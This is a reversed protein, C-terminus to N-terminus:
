GLAAIVAPLERLSRVSFFGPTDAPPAEAHELAWTLHYPVHVGAGGLALVPLIDSKISNGVMLFRAPSVGHKRLISAYVATDKESVIEINSFFEALCSRAVKQEQHRLDGKTIVMLRHTRSLARVTDAAGELLEIPHALMDRGLGLLLRIEEVSIKGDSLEIATEIASLTFGKAGYGYLDLNRKETALLTRDVTAADHYRALLDRFRALTREFIIENHWLTDDADVGILSLPTM